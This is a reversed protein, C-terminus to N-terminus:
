VYSKPKSKTKNKGDKEIMNTNFDSIHEGLRKLLFFPNGWAHANGYKQLSAATIWDELEFQLEEAMVVLVSIALIVVIAMIGIGTNPDINIADYTYIGIFTSGFDILGLTAAAALWRTIKANLKRGKTKNVKDRLHAYRRWSLTAGIMTLLTILTLLAGSLSFFEVSQIGFITSFGTWTTYVGIGSVILLIIRAIRALNMNIIIETNTWEEEVQNAKTPSKPTKPTKSDRPPTQRSRSNNNNNGSDNNGFKQNLSM